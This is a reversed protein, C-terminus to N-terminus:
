EALAKVVQFLSVAAEAVDVKAGDGLEGGVVLLLGHRHVDVDVLALLKEDRADLELAIGDGAVADDAAIQHEILARDVVGLKPLVAQEAEVLEFIELREFHVLVGLGM